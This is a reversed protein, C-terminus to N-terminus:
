SGSGAPGSGSVGGAFGSIGVAGASGGAADQGFTACGRKTRHASPLVSRTGRARSRWTRVGILRAHRAGADRVADGQGILVGVGELPEGRHQLVESVLDRAEREGDALRDLLDDSAVGLEGDDRQVVVVLVGQLEDLLHPCREVPGDHHEEIRGVRREEGCRRVAPQVRERGRQVGLLDLARDLHRDAHVLLALRQRRLHADQRRCELAARDDLARLAHEHRAVADGLALREGLELRQGGFAARAHGVDRCLERASAVLPTAALDAVLAAVDDVVQVAGAERLEDAGVGGSLVAIAPIGARAAAEVDWVTDGVLVADRDGARELAAEVVDPAPKTAAVDASSTWADVIPRADLLELYHELEEEKASSALVVTLGHERLTGLLDRAGPLPRVEGIVEAYRESETARIGDGERAEVDDGLLHGVLQDGGMGIARHIRWGPVRHGHAAMARQWALVHHYNTDVLTGDIDVIATSAM